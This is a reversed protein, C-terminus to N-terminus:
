GRLGACLFDRSGETMQKQSLSPAASRWSEQLDSIGRPLRWIPVTDGPGAGRLGRAPFRREGLLTEQKYGRGVGRVAASAPLLATPLVSGAALCGSSLHWGCWKSYLRFSTVLRRQAETDEETVSHNCYCEHWLCNSPPSSSYM